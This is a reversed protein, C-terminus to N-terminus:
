LKVFSITTDKFNIRINWDGANPIIWKNDPDGVHIDFKGTASPACDPTPAFLMEGSWDSKIETPFKIQGASLPGNYTFIFPEPHQLETLNDWSWGGPTADGIMYIHSYAEGGTFTIAITLSDIYADITYNGTQTIVWKYDPYAEDNPRYVMKTADEANKVYCPLWDTNTTLLKLEGKHLQGSWFFHEFHQMDIHMPTARELSWGALTADGILFLDTLMSTNWAIPITVIDSVHVEDSALIAAKVRFDFLYYKGEALQPFTQALTDAFHKHTLVLTRDATRGINWKLGGAFENGQVDMEITYAIASGSGHNTGSTWALTVATMDKYIPLCFVSDKSLSLTIPKDDVPDVSHKCAPFLMFCLVVVLINFYKM